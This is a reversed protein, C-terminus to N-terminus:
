KCARNMNNIWNTAYRRFRAQWNALPLGKDDTWGIEEMRDFFADICEAPIPMPQSTAYKTVEAHTAFRRSPREKEKDKEKDQDKDQDQLTHIGKPYGKSVRQIGHRSLLDIVHKHPKCKESLPGFQFDVFKVVHWKGSPLVEVRDSFVRLAESAEMPEGIQMSALRINPTWVGANDCNDLLYQWLLKWKAPLDM